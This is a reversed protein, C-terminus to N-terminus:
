AMKTVVNEIIKPKNPLLIKMRQLLVKLEKDPTAVMRLRLNKERTPLLVDLSKLERLEELLKRPATGLGSAKMWQQLTRWMTLALFCVLIHAQTREQKRHFIPRMGLDHKETRFCDEVETLQIYTNWLTKPDSETWNTRLIYSGGTEMFIQLPTQRNPCNRYQQCTIRSIRASQGSRGSEFLRQTTIYADWLYDPDGYVTVDSFATHCCGDGAYERDPPAHAKAPPRSIYRGSPRRVVIKDKNKTSAHPLFARRLRM